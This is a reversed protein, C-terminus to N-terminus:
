ERVIIRPTPGSAESAEWLWQIKRRAWALDESRNQIGEMPVQELDCLAYALTTLVLGTEDISATRGGQWRIAGVFACPKAHIGRQMRLKTWLGGPNDLENCWLQLGGPGAEFLARPDENTAIDFLIAADVLPAVRANGVAFRHM